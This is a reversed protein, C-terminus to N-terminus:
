EPITTLVPRWARRLLSRYRFGNWVPKPSGPGARWNDFGCGIGGSGVLGLREEMEGGHTEELELPPSSVFLDKLTHSQVAMSDKEKEKKKDKKQPSFISPILPPFPPNSRSRSLLMRLTTKRRPLQVVPSTRPSRTPSPAVGCQTALLKFKQLTAM